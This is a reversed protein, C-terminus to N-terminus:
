HQTLSNLAKYYVFFLSIWLSIGTVLLSTIVPHHFGLTELLLLTVIFGVLILRAALYKISYDRKLEKLSILKGEILTGTVINSNIPAYKTRLFITCGSKWYQFRIKGDNDIHFGQPNKNMNAKLSKNINRIDDSDIHVTLYDNQSFDDERLTKSCSNTIAIGINDIDYIIRQRGREWKKLGQGLLTGIIAGLLAM